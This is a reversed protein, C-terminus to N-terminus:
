AMALELWAGFAELGYKAALNCFDLGDFVEIVRVSRAHSARALETWRTIAGQGASDADAYILVNRDEIGTLHPWANSGAIGQLDISSGSHRLAMHATVANLEGECIMVSSGKGYRPSCWAPTGHGGILYCYRPVTKGDQKLPDLNRVKAAWPRGDPGIVLLVLAGTRAFLQDRPGFDKCLRQMPLVDVAVNCLGRKALVEHIPDNEPIPECLRRLRELEPMELPHHTSNAARCQEILNPKPKRSHSSQGQNSESLGARRILERTAERRSWGLDVLLTFANGGDNTGFRHYLWCGAKRNVSFSPRREERGPRPDRILGGRERSLRATELTPCFENLLDPLNIEQIARDLTDAM